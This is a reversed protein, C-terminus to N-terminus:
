NLEAAQRRLRGMITEVLSDTYEAYRFFEVSKVDLRIGAHNTAGEAAPVKVDLQVFQDTIEGTVRPDRHGEDMAVQRLKALVDDLDVASVPVRDM